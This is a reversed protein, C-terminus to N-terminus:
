PRSSERREHDLAWVRGGRDDATIGPSGQCHVPDFGHEEGTINRRKLIGEAMIKRSFGKEGFIFDVVHALRNGDDDSPIFGATADRSFTELDIVM